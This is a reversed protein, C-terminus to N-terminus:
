PKAQNPVQGVQSTGTRRAKTESYAQHLAPTFTKMASGMQAFMSKVIDPHEPAVDYREDPDKALDYLEPSPLMLQVIGGPPAPSWKVTNERSVHLKWNKM